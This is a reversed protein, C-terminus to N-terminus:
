EQDQSPDTEEREGNKDITWSKLVKGDPGYIRFHEPRHYGIPSEEMKKQFRKRAWGKALEYLDEVVRPVLTGTAIGSLYILVQEAWTVGRRGPVYETIRLEVEAGTSRLTSALDELDAQREPELVVAAGGDALVIQTTM